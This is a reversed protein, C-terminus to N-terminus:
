HWRIMNLYDILHGRTIYPKNIDVLLFICIHCITLGVVGVAQANTLDQCDIDFKVHNM